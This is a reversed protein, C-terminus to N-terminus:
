TQMQEETYKNFIAGLLGFRGIELEVSGKTAASAVLQTGFTPALTSAFSAFSLVLM